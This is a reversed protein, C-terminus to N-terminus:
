VRERCSARGIEGEDGVHAAVLDIDGGMDRGFSFDIEGAVPFLGGVEDFDEAALVLEDDGAFLDEGHHAGEVGEVFGGFEAPFYRQILRPDPPHPERRVAIVPHGRNPSLGGIRGREGWDGVDGLQCCHCRRGAASDLAPVVRAKAM